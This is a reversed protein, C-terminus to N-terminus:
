AYSVQLPWDALAVYEAGCPSLRSEFLTLNTIKVVGSEIDRHRDLWEHLDSPPRGTIRALTIHPRFPRTEAAFGSAVCEAEIVAALEMIQPTEEVGAWVVSPRRLSPFVGVGRLHVTVGAIGELAASMRSALRAQESSDTEGLFKWTLHLKLPAVVRLGRGLARLAPLLETDIRPLPPISTGLFTRMSSAATM